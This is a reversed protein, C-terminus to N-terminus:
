PPYCRASKGRIVSMRRIFQCTRKTGNASLTDQALGCLASGVLFIVIAVQLVIKRGYLDGLTKALTADLQFLLGTISTGKTPSLLQLLDSHGSTNYEYNSGYRTNAACHRGSCFLDTNAYRYSRTVFLPIAVLRHDNLLVVISIGILLYDNFFVAVVISIAILCNDNLLVAIV